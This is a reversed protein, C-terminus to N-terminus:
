RRRGIGGIGPGPTLVSAVVATKLLAHNKQPPPGAPAAYAQPPPAAAMQQPPPPAYVVQPQPAGPAVEVQATRPDDRCGAFILV